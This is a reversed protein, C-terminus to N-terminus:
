LQQPATARNLRPRPGAQAYPLMNLDRREKTVIEKAFCLFTLFYYGATSAQYECDCARFVFDLQV